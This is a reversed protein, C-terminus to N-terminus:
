DRAHHTQDLREELFEVRQTLTEILEHDHQEAMDVDKHIHRKVFPYCLGLLLGDVLLVITLELGWHHPDRILDFFHEEGPQWLFEFLEIM